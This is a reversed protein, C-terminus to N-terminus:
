FGALDAYRGRHYASDGLTMESARARKLFFGIDHEDTMGIGGHMQVGENAALLFADNARAKAVSVAQRADAAGEDIKGAAAMVASRLLELEIFVRAARHKLAQFSGIKVGFQEREKLYGLTMEFAATAGGLMEASLAVTARDVIDLLVPGAQGEGGLRATGEVDVGDLVVRAVPAADVRRQRTVAVGRASTPVVFLTVGAEDGPAGATRAAVILEEAHSGGLVQVKEGSLRYGAPTKEARTVVGLPDFRMGPEGHAWGLHLSGEIMPGLLRSRQEASGLRAVAAGALLVNSLYPETALGRGLAETVCVADALGLGLGGDEESFPIATWGLEAISTWVAPDFGVPDDRLKRVRAPPCRKTVLSRATEALQKQDDDLILAM